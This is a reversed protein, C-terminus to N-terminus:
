GCTPQIADLIAKALEGVLAARNKASKESGDFAAVSAIEWAIALATARPDSSPQIVAM